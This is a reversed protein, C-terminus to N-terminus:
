EAVEDENGVCVTLIGEGIIAQDSELLSVIWERAASRSPAQVTVFVPVVYERPRDGEPFPGGGACDGCIPNGHADNRTATDDCVACRADLRARSDDDSPDYTSM